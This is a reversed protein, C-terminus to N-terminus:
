LGREGSSGSCIHLKGADVKDILLLLWEVGSYKLMEEPPLDWCDRIAERLTYAHDCRIVALHEIEELVVM